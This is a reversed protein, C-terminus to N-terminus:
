FKPSTGERSEKVFTFKGAPQHEKGGPGYLLNLSSMDGRDRWLLAPPVQAGVTGTFAPAPRAEGALIPMSLALALVLCIPIQYRHARNMTMKRVFHLVHMVTRREKLRTHLM